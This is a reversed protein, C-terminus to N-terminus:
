NNLAYTIAQGLPSKPVVDAQDKLWRYITKLIPKSKRKRLGKREQDSLEMATAIKKIQYLQGILDVMEKAVSELYLKVIEFFKRRVHAWCGLEKRIM